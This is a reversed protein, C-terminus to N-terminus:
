KASIIIMQITYQRRKRKILSVTITITASHNLLNVLFGNPEARM